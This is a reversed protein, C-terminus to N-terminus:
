GMTWRFLTAKGSLPARAPAEDKLRLGREELYGRVMVWDSWSTLGRATRIHDPLMRLAQWQTEEATALDVVMGGSRGLSALTEPLRSDVVVLDVSQGALAASPLTSAAGLTAAGKLVSRRSVSM